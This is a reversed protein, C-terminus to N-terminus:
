AHNPIDWRRPILWHLLWVVWCPKFVEGLTVTMQPHVVTCGYLQITNSSTSIVQESGSTFDLQIVNNSTTWTSPETNGGSGERIWSVPLDM